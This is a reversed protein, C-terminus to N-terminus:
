IEKGLQGGKKNLILIKEAPIRLLDAINKPSFGLQNLRFIQQYLQGQLPEWNINEDELEASEDFCLAREGNKERLYRLSWAYDLTPLAKLSLARLRGSLAIRKLLSLKVLTELLANLANKEERSVPRAEGFVGKLIQRASFSKGEKEYIFQEITRSIQQCNADPLADLTVQPLSLELCADCGACAARGYDENFYDLIQIRRCRNPAFYAITSDLREKLRSRYAESEAFANKWDNEGVSEATLLDDQLKLFKKDLLADIAPSEQYHSIEGGRVKEWATKLDVIGPHTANIFYEQITRDKETYLAICYAAKGDRGARGAEQYYNEMNGPIHYHIVFRVDPKDIGMGFANTAVVLPREGSIWKKQAIARKDGSMGGHYIVPNYGWRQLYGGIMEVARRTSCYVAGVAGNMQQVLEKLAELKALEKPFRYALYKLNPRDFTSQFHAPNKMRLSHIIDRTVEPTATGTLAMIPSVGMAEAFEGIKLYHPRFDHGWHSICHAEDVALFSIKNKSLAERFLKQGLREPASFIFKYEGKAIKKLRTEMEEKELVASLYCVPVNLKELRFVQDQMLAILPSIVVTVGDMYLGPLQYCLSKGGGTALIAVTDRGNIVSEIIERQMPRFGPLAFQKQLLNLLADM